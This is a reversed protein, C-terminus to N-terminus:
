DGVKLKGWLTPLKGAANVSQSPVFGTDYEEVTSFGMAGKAGGIAYIKGDVASASLGGRATPMGTKNTWTDTAPDYEEVTELPNPIGGIPRGSQGGIAYIKGNVVSTSLVYRPTPMDAKKTWTDTAPDYEEVTSLAKIVNDILVNGGIAYIKGNVASTSLNLRPTPMDAKRTWKDAAPDYEEVTPIRKETGGIAYIKKNVVSTSVIISFFPMRAKKTWTDTAPDYEEVPAPAVPGWGGIVYIKGNVVSTSLQSRAEIMNTKKTWKDTAPDYEEVTSLPPKGGESLGGIAYIKGNVAGTSLGMRATPMDAKKTWKGKEALSILSFSLVWNLVLGLGFMWVFYRRM